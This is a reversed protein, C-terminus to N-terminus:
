IKRLCYFPCVLELEEIFVGDPEIDDVTFNGGVSRTLVEDGIEPWGLYYNHPNMVIQVKDGEKLGCVSQLIRYDNTHNEWNASINSFCFLPWINTGDSIGCRDVVRAPIFPKGILSTMCPNWEQVWGCYYDPVVVRPVLPGISISSVKRVLAHYSDIVAKAPTM